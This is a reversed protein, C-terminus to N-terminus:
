VTFGFKKLTKIMEPKRTTAFLKETTIIPIFDKLLDRCFGKERYNVSTAIYGLEKKYEKPSITAKAKEFVGSVYNQSPNKLSATTIINRGDMAYAILHALEIRREFGETQVEGATKVLHKIKDFVKPPIESPPLIALEM